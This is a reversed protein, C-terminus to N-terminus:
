GTPLVRIPDRDAKSVLVEHGGLIGNLRLALRKLYGRETNTHGALLVSLGRQTAALVEHHKMEGSVFM